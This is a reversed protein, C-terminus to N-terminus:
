KRTKRKSTKRKRTKRKITKRKSTKRKITKRKRTKSKTTKSKRTKRKGGFNIGEFNIGELQKEPDRYSKYSQPKLNLVKLSRPDNYGPAIPKPLSLTTKNLNIYEPLHEVKCNEVCRANCTSICNHYESM